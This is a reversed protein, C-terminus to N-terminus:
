EVEMIARVLADRWRSVARADQYHNFLMAFAFRGGSASEVLGTYSRISSMAGGKWWRAAFHANLAEAYLAGHDGSAALFQLRSLDEAAIFNARSLGSGDVIRARALDLRAAWHDRIADAPLCHAVVGLMKFVCEAEHNDSVELLHGLIEILPASQHVFRRAM